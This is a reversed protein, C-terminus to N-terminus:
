LEVKYIENEIPACGSYWDKLKITKNEKKAREVIEKYTSYTQGNNVVVVLDNKNFKEM